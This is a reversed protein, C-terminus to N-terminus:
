NIVATTVSKYLPLLLVTTVGAGARCVLEFFIFIRRLFRVAVFNVEVPQYTQNATTSVSKVFFKTKFKFTQLSSHVTVSLEEM